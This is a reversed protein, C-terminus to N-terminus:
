GPPPHPDNAGGVTDVDRIPGDKRHIAVEGGGQNRAIEKAADIAEKQTQHKSSAREADDRKVAWEGDAPVVHWRHGPKAM